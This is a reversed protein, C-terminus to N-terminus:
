MRNVTVIFASRCDKVMVTYKSFQDGFLDDREQRRVTGTLIVNLVQAINFYDVLNLFHDARRNRKGFFLCAVAMPEWM